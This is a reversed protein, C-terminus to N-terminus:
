DFGGGCVAHKLQVSSPRQRLLLNTYLCFTVSLLRIERRAKIEVQLLGYESGSESTLVASEIRKM